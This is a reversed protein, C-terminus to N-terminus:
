QSCQPASPITACLSIVWRWSRQPDYPSTKNLVITIENARATDVALPYYNFSASPVFGTVSQLAIDISSQACDPQVYGAGCACTGTASDCVGNGSCMLPCGSSLTVRFSYSCTIATAACRVVTYLNFFLQVSFESKGFNYTGNKLNPKTVVILHVASATNQDIYDYVLTSPIANYQAFLRVNGGTMNTQNAVASLVTPFTNGVVVSFTASTLRTLSGTYVEGSQAAITQGDCQWVVALLVLLLCSIRRM